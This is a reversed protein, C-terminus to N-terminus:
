PARGEGVMSMLQILATVNFVQVRPMRITVSRTNQVNPMERLSVWYACRRLVLQDESHNLWDGPLEPVVVVVLIRPVVSAGCLEEYNKIKLEHPFDPGPPPQEATCKLQLEIRPSRLRGQGGRAALGIDISDDDVSLGYTSMGAAAAVALVYARSFEEKQKQPDM